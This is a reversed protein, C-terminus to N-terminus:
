RHYRKPAGPLTINFRTFVASLAKVIGWTVVTVVLALAGLPLVVALFDAWPFAPSSTPTPWSPLLTALSAPIDIVIQTM